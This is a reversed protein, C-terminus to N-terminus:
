PTIGFSWQSFMKSAKTWGIPLQNYNLYLSIYRSQLLLLSHPYKEEELKVSLEKNAVYCSWILWGGILWVLKDPRFILRVWCKLLQRSTTTKLDLNLYIVYSLSLISKFHWQMWLTKDRKIRYWKLIMFIIDGLRVWYGRWIDNKLVLNRYFTIDPKNM